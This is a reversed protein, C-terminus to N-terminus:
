ETLKYDQVLKQLTIFPERVLGQKMLLAETHEANVSVILMWWKM